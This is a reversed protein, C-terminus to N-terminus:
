EEDEESEHFRSPGTLIEPRYSPKYWRNAYLPVLARQLMKRHFFDSVPDEIM